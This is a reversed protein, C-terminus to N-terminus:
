INKSSIKKELLLLNLKFENECFINFNEKVNQM